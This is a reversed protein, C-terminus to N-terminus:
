KLCPILAAHYNSFNLCALDKVYGNMFQIVPIIKYQM